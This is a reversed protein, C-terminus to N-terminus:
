NNINRSHETIITAQHGIKEIAYVCDGESWTGPFVSVGFKM